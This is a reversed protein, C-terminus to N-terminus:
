KLNNLKNIIEEMDKNFIDINNRLDKLKDLLENKDQLIEGYHTINHKKHEKQCKMCINIKCNKCYADYIEKHKECIYNKSDYYILDHNKDHNHCCSTCLQIKFTDCVFFEKNQSNNINIKNEGNIFKSLDIKQTNEFEKIIM